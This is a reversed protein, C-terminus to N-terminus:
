ASMQKSIPHLGMYKLAYSTNLLLKSLLQKVNNKRQKIKTLTVLISRVKWIKLSISYDTCYLTILLIKFM